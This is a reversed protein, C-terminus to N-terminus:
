GVRPIGAAPRLLQKVQGSLTPTVTAIMGAADDLGLGDAKARAATWIARAMLVQAQRARQPPAYGDPEPSPVALLPAYETCAEYAAGLLETLTAPDKPADPWLARARTPTVWGLRAEPVPPISM